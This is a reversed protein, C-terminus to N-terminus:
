LQSKGHIVDAKWELGGAPINILNSTTVGHNEQKPFGPKYKCQMKSTCHHEMETARHGAQHNKPRNKRKVLRQLLEEGLATPPNKSVSVQRFLGWSALGPHLQDQGRPVSPAGSEPEKEGQSWQLGDGQPQPQSM